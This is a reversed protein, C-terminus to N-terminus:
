FNWGGCVLRDDRTCEQLSWLYSLHSLSRTAVDLWDGISGQGDGPQRLNFRDYQIFYSLKFHTRVRLRDSFGDSSAAVDAYSHKRAPDNADVNTQQRPLPPVLLGEQAVYGGFALRHSIAIDCSREERGSKRMVLTARPATTLDKVTGPLNIFNIRTKVAATETIVGTSWCFRHILLFRVPFQSKYQGAHCCVEFRSHYWSTRCSTLAGDKQTSWPISAYKM